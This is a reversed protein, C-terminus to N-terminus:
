FNRNRMKFEYWKDSLTLKIDRIKHKWAPVKKDEEYRKIGDKTFRWTMGQDLLTRCPPCTGCPEGKVPWFCFWTKKVSEEYGMKKMEEIEEDKTHIFSPPLLVHEFLTYLNKESRKPDLRFYRMGEDQVEEIGGNKELATKGHGGGVTVSVFLGDLGEERAFRAIFGYQKGFGATKFMYRYAKQIEKDPKIAYTPKTILERINGKTLPNKRIDTIIDNIAKLEYSESPRNDKLYYPQIEVPFQSFYMMTYSSDLGGTFLINIRKPM